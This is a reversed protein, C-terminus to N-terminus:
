LLIPVLNGMLGYAVFMFNSVIAVLRLRIITKLYFTSFVLLGGLYGLVELFTM